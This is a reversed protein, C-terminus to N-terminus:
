FFDSPLSVIDTRHHRHSQLVNLVTFQRLGGQALANVAVAGALLVICAEAQRWNGDGINVFFFFM